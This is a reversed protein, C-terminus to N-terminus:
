GYLKLLPNMTARSDARRKNSGTAFNTRSRLSKREDIHQAQSLTFWREMTAHSKEFAARIEDDM